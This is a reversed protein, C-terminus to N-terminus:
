KKDFHIQDAPMDSVIPETIVSDEFTNAKIVVNKCAKFEFATITEEKKTREYRKVINNTITLNEVSEAKVVKDHEMYFVNGDITINKHVPTEWGPLKGGKTVPHVFIAGVDSWEKQRTKCIYFTNERITMDRIPGSEYWENSDNSLFISAMTMGDFTNKEIIVKGRTTCLIGRTPISKMTCGSILVDPTYTINEAVFKNQGAIKDCINMPLEENFSVLMEKQSYNGEGPATAVKVTYIKETKDICQLMDRSYFVVKDGVHFQPFGGQQSHVYKLILTHSDIQKVVRTFTGHINIPDDHAHSFACNKISILGAAGSVHILDAFSTCHRNNKPNPVFSCTDFSVDRSMQVLFGFGNMYHININEFSVTTSEWVFAGACERFLSQCVEYVIEPERFLDPTKKWYSFRVHHEDLKKVKRAMWFPGSLHNCRCSNETKPSYTVLCYSMGANKFKWYRHNDIPSDEFWTIRHGRTKWQFNEPIFFDATYKTVKKPILEVTTPTAFDWSFNKMVINKSKIVTVAQMNGHFIFMSDNGDIVLNKCNEVLFGFTKDPNKLSDTNSTHVVFHPANDKYFHYEGKPFILVSDEELERISNLANQLPLENCRKSNNDGGFDLVNFTKM